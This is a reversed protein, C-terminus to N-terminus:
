GCSLWVSHIILDDNALNATVPALTITLQDGGQAGTVTKTLEHVVKTAGAMVGFNGTVLSAGADYAVGDRAAFVGPTLLEVATDTAGVRSARVHLTVAAGAPLSEPLRVSGVIIATSDDNFRIGFGENDALQFGDAVGASFAAIAAGSSLRFGGLPLDVALPGDAFASLAPNIMVYALGDRVETVVGAVGRAGDAGNSDLSVTQNDVVYVVQRPKPETGEYKLGEVRYSVQADIAGAAGGTESGTRNDYTQNSLGIAPRGPGPVAARGASDQCVITGKLLLTNAAIPYTGCRPYGDAGASKPLREVTTATM